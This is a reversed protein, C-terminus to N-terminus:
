STSDTAGLRSASGTIPLRITFCAGGEPAAAAQASGGLRSTLGHVLALGVGTGVQRVGRYREYLVSREFAVECDERTLGPGGDRVQIVATPFGPLVGSPLGPLAASAISEVDEPADAHSLALVIPSGAPTVRLANEALGDVIQRVRSADTIVRVPEDPLEASFAVGVAECRSSWVAAAGVMLERLDVPGFDIRFDEAGLRALDLLDQVLRELRTSESAITVGAAQADPGTVVGQAIAEAFGKVATLPTRFEHSISLLFERQRAESTALADGLTNMAVAVQAVEPPGSEQLRVDRRGSALLGAADAARRLPRSLHRALFWSAVLAVALGALLSVLTPQVLSVAAALGSSVPQALILAGGDDLPRSEVLVDRNQARVRISLPREALVAQDRGAVAAVAISQGTFTHNPRMRAVPTSQQRLTRVAQQGLAPRAADNVLAAILDAQRGLSHQAQRVQAQQVLGLSVVAAVVVAVVAGSVAVLAIRGSLAMRGAM